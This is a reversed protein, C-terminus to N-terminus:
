KFDRLDQETALGTRQPPGNPPPFLSPFYWGRRQKGDIIATTTLNWCSVGTKRRMVPLWADWARTGEFVFIQKAQKDAIVAGLPPPPPSRYRRPVSNSGRADKEPKIKSPEALRKRSVGSDSPGCSLVHKDVPEGASEDGMEGPSLVDDPEVVDQNEVEDVDSIDDGDEEELEPQKGWDWPADERQCLIWYDTARQKGDEGKRPAKRVYGNRILAGIFRYVSRPTCSAEAAITDARLWCYGDTHNAHNSISILVLKPRAPLDQDLAWAVAQISM